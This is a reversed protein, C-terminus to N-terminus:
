DIEWARVDADGLAAAIEDDSEDGPWKGIVGRLWGASEATRRHDDPDLPTPGLRGAKVLRTPVIDGRAPFEDAGPPVDLTQVGLLKGDADYKAYCAGEVLIRAEAVEGDAYRTYHPGDDPAVPSLVYPSTWSEAAAKRLAAMAEPDNEDLRWVMAPPGADRPVYVATREGDTLTVCNAECRLGAETYAPVIRLTSGDLKPCRPLEPARMPPATGSGGQPPKRNPTESDARRGESM